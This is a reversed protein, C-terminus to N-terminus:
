LTVGPLAPVPDLAQRVEGGPALVAFHAEPLHRERPEPLPQVGRGHGEGTAGPVLSLM